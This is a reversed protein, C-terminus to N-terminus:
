VAVFFLEKQQFHMQAGHIQIKASIGAVCFFSINVLFFFIEFFNLKIWFVDWGDKGTQVAWSWKKYLGYPDRQTFARTGARSYGGATMSSSQKNVLLCPFDSGVFQQVVHRAMSPLPSLQAFGFPGSVALLRSARVHQQRLESPKNDTISAPM